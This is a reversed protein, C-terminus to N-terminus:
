GIRMSHRFGVVSVLRILYTDIVLGESINSMGMEMSMDAGRGRTRRQRLLAVGKDWVIM